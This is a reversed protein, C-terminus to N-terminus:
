VYASRPPPPELAPVYARGGIPRSWIRQTGLPVLLLATLLVTLVVLGAATVISDDFTPLDSRFSEHASHHEAHSQEPGAEHHEVAHHDLAGDRADLLLQLLAHPHPEAIGARMQMPLLCLGLLALM